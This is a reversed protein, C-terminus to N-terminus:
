LPQPWWLVMLGVGAAYFPLSPPLTGGMFRLTFGYLVVAELFVDILVVGKRWKALSVADDPVARLAERAADVMKQRIFVTAGVIGVGLVLFATFITPNLAHGVNPSLIEAIAAYLLM